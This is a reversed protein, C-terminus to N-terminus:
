DETVSAAEAAEEREARIEGILFDTVALMGEYGGAHTSDVIYRGDVIITPVGNVGGKQYAEGRAVAQQIRARVGISKFTSEFEDRSVGYPEFFDALKEVTNPMQREDHLLRFMPVHARELVDLVEATYYVQAFWQYMRNFIAPTREFVVDDAIEHEWSALLPDFKYCHPCAYSFYEMVEIRGPDSTEVPSDLRMYHTGETYGAEAARAGASLWTATFMLVLLVLSRAM